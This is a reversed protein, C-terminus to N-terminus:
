QTLLTTQKKPNHKEISEFSCIEGENLTKMCEMFDVNKSKFAAAIAIISHVPADMGMLKRWPKMPSLHRQSYVQLLQQDHMHRADIEKLFDNERRLVATAHTETDCSHFRIYIV